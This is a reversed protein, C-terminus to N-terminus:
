NIRTWVSGDRGLHEGPPLPLDAGDLPASLAAEAEPASVGYYRNEENAYIEGREDVFFTRRGAQSAAPWAYARWQLEAADPDTAGEALGSEVAEAVSGTDAGPLFIRFVYGSRSVVSQKNLTRFAGSLLPPDIVGHM